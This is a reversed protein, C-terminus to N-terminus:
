IHILSLVDLTVPVEHLNLSVSLKISGDKELAQTSEILAGHTGINLITCDSDTGAASVKAAAGLRCRASNRVAVGNVKDPYTLHLYNFPSNTSRIVQAPFAFSSTGSFTRMVVAEGARLLLRLSDKQPATVIVSQGELWGVLMVTTREKTLTQPLDMYLPDGVRLRMQAFSCTLSSADAGTSPTATAGNHAPAPQM